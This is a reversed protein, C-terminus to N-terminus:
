PPSPFSPTGVRARYFEWEDRRDIRDFWPAAAIWPHAKLYERHIAFTDYGLCCVLFRLGDFNLGQLSTGMSGLDRDLLTWECGNLTTHGHFGRYYLSDWHWANPGGPGDYGHWLAVLRVDKPQEALWPVWAPLDLAPTQYFIRRPAAGDYLVLGTLLACVLLRVLGPRVRGVVRSLILPAAVSWLGIAVLGARGYCRFSAVLDFLVASPGGALSLLVLLGALGVARDLFRQHDASFRWGRLRLVGYLALALLATWGPFHWGEMVDPYWQVDVKAGGRRAVRYLDKAHESGPRVVYQWADAGYFWLEFPQRQYYQESLPRHHAPSWVPYTLAGALLAFTAGAACTPLVHARTLRGGALCGLWWAGLVLVMFFGFYFSGQVVLALAAGLALGRWLSPRDLYRSFAWVALLVWAHKFLHLHGNLRTATSFNFTILVVALAAWGASGTLRRVIWAAVWGNVALVLVIMLHYNVLPPLFRGTVASVLMLDVGEFLGPHKAAGTQYPRGVVEGRDLRWWRGGLESSRSLQYVYFYADGNAPLQRLGGRLVPMYYGGLVLVVPLLALGIRCAWVRGRPAPRPDVAADM